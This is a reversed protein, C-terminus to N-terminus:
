SSPEPAVVGAAAAGAGVPEDGALQWAALSPLGSVLALRSAPVYGLAGSSRQVRYYSGTRGLYRVAAGTSITGVRDARPGPAALLPADGALAGVWAPRGWASHVEEAPMPGDVMKPLKRGVPELFPYPDIAGRQYLGFHLHPPTTRANGTNGVFGLTDGPAVLDGDKVTQSDLHAYYLRVGSRQGDDVSADSDSRVWVVRGGMPTTGVRYVRGGTASLVPTGRPAFIDIGRHIRRGGDRPAGFLSWAASLDRGEVPFELQPSLKLTVDYRIGRLLEPQIRLIYEGDRWAEYAIEGTALTDVEMPRLPDADNSPVRFLDVFIRASGQARRGLEVTLRKGRELEFRFSPARVTEPSVIGEERFPLEVNVSSTRVERGARIWDQALATEALGSESLASRYEEHSTAERLGDQVKEVTECGCLLLFALSAWERAGRARKARLGAGLSAPDLRLPDAWGQGTPM